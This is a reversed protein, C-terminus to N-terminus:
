DSSPKFYIGTGVQCIPSCQGYATFTIEEDLHGSLIYSLTFCTVPTVVAHLAAVKVLRHLFDSACWAVNWDETYSSVLCM